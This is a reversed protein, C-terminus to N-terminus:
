LHAVSCFTWPRNNQWVIEVSLPVLRIPDSGHSCLIPNNGRTHVLSMHHGPLSGYVVAAGPYAASPTHYQPLNELFWETTIDWSAIKKGLGVQLIVQSTQSCDAIFGNKSFVADYLQPMSTIYHYSEQRVDDPPYHVRDHNKLLFSMAALASNRQSQNM